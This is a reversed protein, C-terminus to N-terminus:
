LPSACKTTGDGSIRLHGAAVLETPQSNDEASPFTDLHLKGRVFPQEDTKKGSAKFWMSVVKGLIFFGLATTWHPAGDSFSGVVALVCSISHEM